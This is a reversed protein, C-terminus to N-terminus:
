ALRDSITCRIPVDTEQLSPETRVVEQTGTRVSRTAGSHPGHGRPHPGDGPGRGQGGPVPPQRSESRSRERPSSRRRDSSRRRRSRSRSRSRRGSSSPSPPTGPPSGRRRDPSHRRSRSRSERPHVDNTTRRRPTTPDTTREDGRGNRDRDDDQGRKGTSEKTPDSLILDNTEEIKKQLEDSEPPDRLTTISVYGKEISWLFILQDIISAMLTDDDDDDDEPAKSILLVSIDAAKSAKAYCHVLLSPHIWLSGSRERRASVKTDSTGVLASLEKVTTVKSFDDIDPVKLNVRASPPHFPLILGEVNLEKFPTFRKLGCVGIVRNRTLDNFCHHMFRVSKHASPVLLATYEQFAEVANLLKTGDDTNKTAIDSLDLGVENKPDLFYDSWSKKNRHNVAGEVRKRCVNQVPTQGLVFPTV